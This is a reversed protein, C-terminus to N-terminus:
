LNHFIALWPAIAAVFYFATLAGLTGHCGRLYLVVGGASALAKAGVLAPGTGASEMLTALLLNGEEVVDLVGVATYTLLGDSLQAILFVLLIFLPSPRM